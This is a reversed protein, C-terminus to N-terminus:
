PLVITLRAFFNRPTVLNTNFMAIDAPKFDLLNDGGLSLTYRRRYSLSSSLRTTFYGEYRYKEVNAPIGKSEDAANLYYGDVPSHYRAMATASLHWDGFSKFSQLNFLFNHPRKNNFAYTDGNLQIRAPSYIYSYGVTFSLGNIPRYTVRLNGVNMRSNGEINYHRQDGKEDSLMLIRNTFITHTFDATVQLKSAYWDISGMFQDATEPKLDPNGYIHFMGLHSWDYYLEMLEPSKFAHAYSARLTIQPLKYAINLKPSAHFRSRSHYDLRVGAMLDFSRFLERLYQGYIVTNWIAKTEKASAIQDSLIREERGEIGFNLESDDGYMRNWQARAVQKLNNHMLERHAPDSAEIMPYYRYRLSLDASYSVELNNKESFSYVGKINGGYNGYHDNREKSLLQKRHGAQLELMLTFARMPSLEFHTRAGYIINAPIERGNGVASSQLYYGGNRRLSLSTSNSWMKRRISGNFSGSWQGTSNYGLSADATWPDLPKKTIINIVGAIANSGYLASGAGRVVEIREVNTPDLRYFDINGQKMGAMEEGNVLFNVYHGSLGQMSIKPINAHSSFEVGPISYELLEMMTAPVVREIEPKSVISTPVTVDLLHKTTRTSTVVLEDLFEDKEQLTIIGMNNSVGHDLIQVRSRYARYSVHSLSLTYEGTPASLEFYGLADTQTTTIVKEDSTSLQVVVNPIKERLSVGIVRGRLSGYGSTSMASADLAPIAILLSILSLLALQGLRKM